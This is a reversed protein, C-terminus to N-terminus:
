EYALILSVSQGDAGLEIFLSHNALFPIGNSFSEVVDLAVGSPVNVNKFLFFTSDNRLTDADERLGRKGAESNPNIDDKDEDEVNVDNYDVVGSDEEGSTYVTEVFHQRPKFGISVTADVNNSASVILTKLKRVRTHSASPILTVPVIKGVEGTEIGDVDVYANINIHDVKMM